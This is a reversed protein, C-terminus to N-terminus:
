QGGIEVVFKRVAEFAAVLNTGAFRDMEGCDEFSMRGSLILVSVFPLRLYKACARAFEDSIAGPERIGNELQALFGKSVKLNACLVEISDERQVAVKFLLPVLLSGDRLQTFGEDGNIALIQILSSHTHTPDV